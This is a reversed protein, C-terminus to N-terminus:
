CWLHLSEVWSVTGTDMQQSRVAALVKVPTLTHLHWHFSCTPSNQKQFLQQVLRCSLGNHQEITYFYTEFWDNYM